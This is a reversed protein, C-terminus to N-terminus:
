RRRPANGRPEADGELARCPGLITMLMVGRRADAPGSLRLAPPSRRAAVAQIRPLTVAMSSESRTLPTAVREMPPTVVPKAPTPRPLPVPVSPVGEEQSRRAAQRQFWRGIFQLLPVLLFLVFLLLQEITM